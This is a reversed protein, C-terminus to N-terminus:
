ATDRRQRYFAWRTGASPASANRQPRDARSDLSIALEHEVTDMNALM